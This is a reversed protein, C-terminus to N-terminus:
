PVIEFIQDENDDVNFLFMDTDFSDTSATWECWGFERLPPARIIGSGPRPGACRSM